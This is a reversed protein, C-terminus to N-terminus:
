SSYAYTCQWSTSFDNPPPFYQENVTISQISLGKGAQENLLWAFDPADAAPPVSQLWLTRLPAKLRSVFICLQEATWETRSLQLCTVGRLGEAFNVLSAVDKRGGPVDLVLRKLKPMSALAPTVVGLDVGASEKGDGWDVEPDGRVPFDHSLALKVQLSELGTVKALRALDEVVADCALEALRPAAALAEWEHLSLPTFDSAAPIFNLAAAGFVLHSLRTLGSLTATRSQVRLADDDFTLVLEEVVPVLSRLCLRRFGRPCSTFMARVVKPFAAPAHTGWDGVPEAVLLTLHPLGLALREAWGGAPLYVGRLEYLHPWPLGLDCGLPPWCQCELGAFELSTLRACPLTALHHAEDFPSILLSRLCPLSGIVRACHEDCDPYMRIKLTNIRPVMAPLTALAALADEIDTQSDTGLNLQLTTIGPVHRLVSALDSPGGFDCDYADLEGLAALVACAAERRPGPQEAVAFCKRLRSHFGSGPLDDLKLRALLPFRSFDPAGRWSKINGPLTLVSTNMELRSARDFLRAAQRANRLDQLLM